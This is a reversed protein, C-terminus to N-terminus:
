TLKLIVRQKLLVVLQSRLVLGDLHGYNPYRSDGIGADIRDVVPFGHHRTSHLIQAIRGVNEIRLFTLNIEHAISHESRELAIVDKRMVTKALINRSLKPPHWGLIPIESLDIHEDYIGQYINKLLPFDDV